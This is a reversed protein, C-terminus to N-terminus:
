QLVADFNAAPALPGGRGSHDPKVNERKFFEGSGRDVLLEENEIVVRGRNIVIRPWGTVDMGEFPTYDMNDHMM